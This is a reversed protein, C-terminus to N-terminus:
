RRSNPSGVLPSWDVLATARPTAWSRLGGELTRHALPAFLGYPLGEGRLHGEGPGRVVLVQPEGASIALIAANLGIEVPATGTDASRPAKQILNM